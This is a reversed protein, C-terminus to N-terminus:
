DIDRKFWGYKDGMNDLLYAAIWGLIGALNDGLVNVKADAYKKGGPWIPFRNIIAMGIHTNEAMEFMFHLLAWTPLSINFFYAIVGTAFHLLTFQDFLQTGM